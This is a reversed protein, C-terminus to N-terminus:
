GNNRTSKFYKFTREDFKINKDLLANAFSIKPFDQETLISFGINKNKFYQIAADIKCQLVHSMNKLQYAPKIEYVINKSKIYFDIRYTRDIEDLKYPISFCEYDVDNHLDINMSELYKMFSYEFLSRFFLNKYYGKVSKGGSKYNKGFAPNNKGSSRISFKKKISDAKEKGFREEFTKGTNNKNMKTYMESAIKRQLSYDAYTHKYTSSCSRSCCESTKARKRFEKKCNKCIGIEKTM